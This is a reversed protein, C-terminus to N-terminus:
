DLELARLITREVRRWDRLVDVAAFRLRRHGGLVFASDRRRDRAFQVASSHFGFGDIEVFLREDVSMDVRGVGPLEVQQRVRLGRRELRQRAISEVGSDSGKRARSAILRLRLPEARFIRGIASADVLRKGLATDLTAIATEADCCRVVARLCDELSVRWCEITPSTTRWHLRVPVPAAAGLRAANRSVALHVRPDDGSWLDYRAAASVCTLRGGISVAIRQAPTADATVYRGQRLRHLIGDRVANTLDHPSYGSSLLQQTTAVNGFRAVADHLTHVADAHGTRGERM